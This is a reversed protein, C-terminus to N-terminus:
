IRKERRGAAANHICTQGTGDVRPVSHSPSFFRESQMHTLGREIQASSGASETETGLSNNRAAGFITSSSSTLLGILTRQVRLAFFAIIQTCCTEAKLM